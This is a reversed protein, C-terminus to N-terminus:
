MHRARRVRGCHVVGGRREALDHTASITGTVFSVIFVEM